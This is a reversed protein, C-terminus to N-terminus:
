KEGKCGKCLCPPEDKEWHYMREIARELEPDSLGRDITPYQVRINWNGNPDQNVVVEHRRALYELEYETTNAEALKARLQEARQHEVDKDCCGGLNLIGTGLLLLSTVRM